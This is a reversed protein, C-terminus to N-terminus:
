VCFFECFIQLEITRYVEVPVRSLLRVAMITEVTQGAPSSQIGREKEPTKLVFISSKNMTYVTSRCIDIVDFMFYEVKWIWSRMFYLGEMEHLETALASVDINTVTVTNFSNSIWVYLM